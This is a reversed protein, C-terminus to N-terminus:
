PSSAGDRMFCAHGFMLRDFELIASPDPCYKAIWPHKMQWPIDSRLVFVVGTLVARDSLRPRGGKPRPTSDLVTPGFGVVCRSAAHRGYEM